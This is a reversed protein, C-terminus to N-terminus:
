SALRGLAEALRYRQQMGPSHQLYHAAPLLAAPSAADQCLSEWVTELAALEDTASWGLEASHAEALLAEFPQRPLSPLSPQSRRRAQPLEIM